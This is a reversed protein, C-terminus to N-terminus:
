FFEEIQDAKWSYSRQHRPIMFFDTILLNYLTTPSAYIAKGSM